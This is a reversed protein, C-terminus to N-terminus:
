MVTATINSANNDYQMVCQIDYM